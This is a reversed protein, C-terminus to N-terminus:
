SKCENEFFIMLEIESELAVFGTDLIVTSCGLSGILSEIVLELPTFTLYFSSVNTFSTIM